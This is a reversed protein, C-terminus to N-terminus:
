KNVESPISLAFLFPPLKGDLGFALIYKIDLIQM